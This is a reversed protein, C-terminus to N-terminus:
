PLSHHEGQRGGRYALKRAMSAAGDDPDQEHSCIARTRLDDIAEDKAIALLSALLPHGRNESQARLRELIEATTKLFKEEVVSPLYIVPSANARASM